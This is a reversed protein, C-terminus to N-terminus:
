LQEEVVEALVEAQHLVGVADEVDLQVAIGTGPTDDLEGVKSIEELIQRSLHEEVLMLLVDRQGSLTLGFFTKHKELGEGRANNIVTCGTAGSERAAKMVAETKSDEVFVVLLKFHM